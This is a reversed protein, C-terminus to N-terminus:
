ALIAGIPDYRVYSKAADSPMNENQLFKEANEAYYHCSTACKEVEAKAEKLVKGMESTITYAFDDRKAILLGAIRLMLGRREEFSTKRWEQFTKEALVLCNNVMEDSMVEYEAKVELTYPYISKFFM